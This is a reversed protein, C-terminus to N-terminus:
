SIGREFLVAQEETSYGLDTLIDVNSAGLRPAFTMQRDWITALAGRPFFIPGHVPHDMKVLFGRAILQEDDALELSTSVPASPIHRRQAETVLKLKPQTASWSGVRDLIM